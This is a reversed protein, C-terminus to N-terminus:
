ANWNPSFPGRLAAWQLLMITKGDVITTGIGDLAQEFPLEVLHIDEGEEAVGGGAGTRTAANYPAAFFHVIETVSGPSMYADFIAEVEGVTHGTEEVVERKIAAEPNDLDLLGAPTEILLGDPHGNVYAPYRFQKTLLVTGSDRNYLLITAGNGRDYTERLETSWEGSSHLFDITTRRLISWDCALIEVDKVRVGPNGTLDRGHLHLNTRGRADPEDIGKVM